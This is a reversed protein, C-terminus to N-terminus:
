GHTKEGYLKVADRRVVAGRSVQARTREPPAHYLDRRAPRRTPYIMRQSSIAPHDAGDEASPM